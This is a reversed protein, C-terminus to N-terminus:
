LIIQGNKQRHASRTRGAGLGSLRAIFRRRQLASHGYLGDSKEEVYELVKTRVISPLHPARLMSNITAASLGSSKHTARLITWSTSRPLGLAKAQEDLKLFGSTVLADKLEKIKLLQRAKM